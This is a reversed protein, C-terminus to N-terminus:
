PSPVETKQPKRAPVAIDPQVLRLNVRITESEEYSYEILDIALSVPEPLMSEYRAIPDKGNTQKLVESLVNNPFPSPCFLVIGGSLGKSSKLKEARQLLAKLFDKQKREDDIYTPDELLCGLLAMRGKGDNFHLDFVPLNTKQFLGQQQRFVEVDTVRGLSEWLLKQRNYLGTRHALAFFEIILYQVCARVVIPTEPEDTEVSTNRCAAALNLPNSTRPSTIVSNLTIESPDACKIKLKYTASNPMHINHINRIPM